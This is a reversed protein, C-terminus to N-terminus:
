RCPQETLDGGNVKQVLGICVVDPQSNVDMLFIWGIAIAGLGFWVFREV